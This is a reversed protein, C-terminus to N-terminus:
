PAPEQPAAATGAPPAAAAADRRGVETATRVRPTTTPLTVPLLVGLGLPVLLVMPPPPSKASAPRAPSPPLGAPAAEGDALAPAALACLLLASAVRRARLGSTM